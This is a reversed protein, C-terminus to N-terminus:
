HINAILILLTVVIITTITFLAIVHRKQTNVTEQDELNKRFTFEGQSPDSKSSEKM